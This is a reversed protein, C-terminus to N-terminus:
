GKQWEGEDVVLTTISFHVDSQGYLIETRVAATCFGVSYVQGTGEHGLTPLHVKEAVGPVSLRLLRM